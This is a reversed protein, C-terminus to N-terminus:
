DATRELFVEGTEAPKFFDKLKSYIEKAKSANDEWLNCVFIDLSVYKKEPWTHLSVHSEALAIVCTIENRKSFTHYYNWVETLWASTLSKSIMDKLISEDLDRQSFDVGKLDAIIHLGIM